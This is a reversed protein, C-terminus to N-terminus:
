KMTLYTTPITFFPLVGPGFLFGVNAAIAYFTFLRDKVKTTKQEEKAREEKGLAELYLPYSVGFYAFAVVNQLSGYTGALVRAIIMMWGNIATAYFVYATIDTLLTLMVSYWFPIRSVIYGAFIAGLFEGISYVSITWHYFTESLGLGPEIQLVNSPSIHDSSEFV